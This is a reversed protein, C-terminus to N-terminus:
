AGTAPELPLTADFVGQTKSRVFGLRAYFGHAGNREVRSRVRLRTCGQAAGWEAATAVLRRGVGQGRSGSGVVLGGLEAFPDSELRLSVFAHVWGAVEGGSAAALWVAHDPRALLIELRRSISAPESPYGLEASLVALGLADALTAPRVERADTTPGTAGDKPVATREVDGWRRSPGPFGDAGVPVVCFRQGTPAEMVWWTRVSAVRVAGLNELRAVEADVDDTAIDLHVRSPHGVKQVEVDLEGPPSALKAYAPDDQPSPPRVLWGLAASWFRAAADLDDTRCDIIMGGLRSHHM